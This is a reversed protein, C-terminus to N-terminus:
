NGKKTIIGFEFPMVYGLNIYDGFDRFLAWLQTTLVDGEKKQHTSYGEWAQNYIDAGQKTLTVSVTDNLNLQM